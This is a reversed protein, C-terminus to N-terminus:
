GSNLIMCYAQKSLTFALKWIGNKPEGMM